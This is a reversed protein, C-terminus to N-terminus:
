DCVILTIERNYKNREEWLVSFVNNNDRVTKLLQIKLIELKNHIHNKKELFKWPNHTIHIFHEQSLHLLSASSFGYFCNFKFLSVKEM